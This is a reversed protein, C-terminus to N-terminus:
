AQQLAAMSPEAARWDIPLTGFGALKLGHRVPLQQVHQAAHPLSRYPV